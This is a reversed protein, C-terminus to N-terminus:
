GEVLESKETLFVANMGYSYLSGIAGVTEAIDDLTSDLKFNGITRNMYSHKGEGDTGTIFRASASRTEGMKQYAM